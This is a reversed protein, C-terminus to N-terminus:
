FRLTPGATIRLNHNWGHDFYIEDGAEVRLGLKGAFLEIGGGPYFV